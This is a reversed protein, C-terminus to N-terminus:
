KYSHMGGLLNNVGFYTMLVTLFALCVYIHFFLPKNFKSVSETHFTAAYVLFTILAWTEKPDWSWYNGWSVNAWVAGLFIGTGLLFVAPYLMTKSLIALSEISQAHADKDICHIVIGLIGNLTVFAFLAYSIMIVSVHLSLLPSHLVPMLQTIQPNKQGLWAVLLAFGSLLLGFPVTIPFRKRLICALLLICWAVFMMTEYGNSLPIRGTIYGLLCMGITHFAFSLFLLFSFISSFLNKHSLTEGRLISVCLFIIALFGITLNLMFLLKTFPIRNYWIEAMIKTDSIPEISGDDPIAHILEKQQLLTVLAIKEDAQMIAKQLPSPPDGHKAMQQCTAWLKQLRYNGNEDFFDVYRAYKGQLGLTDRLEASKVLIMPENKWAEPFLLWSGVVQEASLGKYSPKGYLKITFDRALTNFPAIRNNYIVQRTAASDAFEKEWIPKVM